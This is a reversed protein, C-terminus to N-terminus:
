PIVNRVSPASFSPRDQGWVSAWRETPIGCSGLGHPPGGARGPLCYLNSVEPLRDEVARRGYVSRVPRRTLPRRRQLCVSETLLPEARKEGDRLPGKSPGAVAFGGARGPSQNGIRFRVLLIRLGSVPKASHM